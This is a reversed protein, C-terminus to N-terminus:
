GAPRKLFARFSELMLDRRLVLIVAAYSFVGSAILTALDRGEAKGIGPIHNVALVVLSMVLTAILPAIYNRLYRTLDIALVQQVCYMWIPALLLAVAAYGATLVPLGSRILTFFAILNAIAILSQLRLKLDPRGMGVMLTEHFRMLSHVFAVIAMFQMLVVSDEWQPGFVVPVIREALIALGAFAPMALLVVYETARHFADTVKQTDLQIRSFIPWAVNEITGGILDSLLVVIRKAVTYVGVPAAGLAAGILFVDLHKTGFAVLNAGSVNIGFSFLERFHPTSFRFAPRWSTTFWIVVTQILSSAIARAVLSWVGFGLLAMAIGILGSLPESVLTRLALSRFQLRRRLISIQVQQFANLVLCLSLWRLVAQLGQEDFWNAIFPATVWALVALALALGVVAWFMSDFHEAEVEVRQVLAATLAAGTFLTLFIIFTNAIAVLGFDTPSLLRALVIFVVLGSIQTGLNQVLTWIFGSIATRRVGKM